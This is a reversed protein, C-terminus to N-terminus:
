GDLERAKRMLIKVIYKHGTITVQVYFVLGFSLHNALECHAVVIPQNTETDSSLMLAFSLFHKEEQM